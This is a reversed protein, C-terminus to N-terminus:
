AQDRGQGKERYPKVNEYVRTVTEQLRKLQLEELQERPMTEIEKNWIAM